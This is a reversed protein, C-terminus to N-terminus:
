KKITTMTTTRWQSDTIFSSVTGGPSFSLRRRCPMTKGRLMVSYETERRKPAGPCERVAPIRNEPRTPTRFGDNDEEVVEEQEEDEEDPRKRKRCIELVFTDDSFVEEIKESVEGLTVEEQKLSTIESM